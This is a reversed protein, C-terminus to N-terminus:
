AQTHSSSFGVQFTGPMPTNTPLFGHQTLWEAENSTSMSRGATPRGDMMNVLDEVASSCDALGKTLDWVAPQDPTEYRGAPVRSLLASDVGSAGPIAASPTVAPATVSPITPVTQWGKGPVWTRPAQGPGPIWVSGGTVGGPTNPTIGPIATVGPISGVPPLGPVQDFSGGGGRLSGTPGTGNAANQRAQDLQAQANSKASGDGTFLDHLSKWIHEFEQLPNLVDGLGNKIIDFFGKLFPSSDTMGKIADSVSKIPGALGSFQDTATGVSKNLDNVQGTYIPMLWSVLQALATLLPTVAVAWDAFSKALGPIQPGLVALVQNIASLVPPGIPALNLFIQLLQGGIQGLQTLATIGTTIFQQLQGSAASQQIFTNFANAVSGISQALQPLFSSGVQTITLFAQSFPQMAQAWIQFSSGINAFIQQMAAMTQPQTMFQAFQSFAQNMTGALGGLGQQLIPLYTTALNQLVPGLGALLTDQISFKLQDFVPKIGRLSSVFAQANPSLKSMAQDLANVASSPKSVAQNLSDQAAAVQDQSKALRQNAAVVQDANDVGKRQADAAKTQLEINRQHVEAVRQDAEQVRLQAQAYDLATKYHGTM